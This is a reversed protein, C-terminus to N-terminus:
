TSEYIGYVTARFFEATATKVFLKEGFGIRVWPLSIVMGGNASFPGGLIISNPNGDDGVALGRYIKSDGLGTVVLQASSLWLRTSALNPLLSTGGDATYIALEIGAQAGGVNEAQARFGIGSPVIGHVSCCGAVVNTNTDCSSCSM